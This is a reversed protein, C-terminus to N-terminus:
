LHTDILFSPIVPIKIGNFFTKLITWYTNAKSQPDNLEKAHHFSYEDSRQSIISSLELTLENM